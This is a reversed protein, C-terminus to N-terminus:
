ELAKPPLYLQKGTVEIGRAEATDPGQTFEIVADRSVIATEGPCIIIISAGGRRIDDVADRSRRQYDVRDVIGENANQRLGALMQEGIRVNSVNFNLITAVAGKNTFAVAISSVIAAPRFTLDHFKRLLESLKRPLSLAERALTGASRMETLALRVGFGRGCM